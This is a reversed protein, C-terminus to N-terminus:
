HEDTWFNHAHTTVNPNAADDLYGNPVMLM